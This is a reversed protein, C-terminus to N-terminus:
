LAYQVRATHAGPTPPAYLAYPFLAHPGPSIKICEITV